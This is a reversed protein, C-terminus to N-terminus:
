QIKRANAYNHFAVIVKTIDTQRDTQSNTRGDAHFFEAVMQRIKIFNSINKECIWQSSELKM